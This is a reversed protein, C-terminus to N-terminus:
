WFTAPASSAESVANIYEISVDHINIFNVGMNSLKTRHLLLIHKKNTQWTKINSEDVQIQFKCTLTLEM